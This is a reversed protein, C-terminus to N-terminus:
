RRRAELKNLLNLWWRVKVDKYVFPRRVKPNLPTLWEEAVPWDTMPRRMLRAVAAEDLDHFAKVDEGTLRAAIRSSLSQARNRYIPVEPCYFLFPDAMYPMDAFLGGAQAANARENGQFRWGVARLRAVDAIMVDVYTIRGPDDAQGVYARLSPDARMQRRYKPLSSAKMFGPFVFARGAGLILGIQQLEVPQVPRVVQMDEQLFLILGTQAEDLARNMNAYLGGHRGAEAHGPQVVPVDLARLVAVTEPDTSTDDYVRVEAFPMNRRVSAVCNRLYGGRNYSFVAVTIGQVAAGWAV